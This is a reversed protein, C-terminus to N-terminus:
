VARDGLLTNIRVTQAKIIQNMSMANDSSTARLHYPADIKFKDAPAFESLKNLATRAFDLEAKLKELLANADKVHKVIADAEDTHEKVTKIAM